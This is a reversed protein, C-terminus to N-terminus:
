WNEDKTVVARGTPRDRVAAFSNGRSARSFDASAGERTGQALADPRKAVQV